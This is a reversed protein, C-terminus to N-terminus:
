LDKRSRTTKKLNYREKKRKLVEEKNKDYYRQQNQLIRKRNKKYYEPDYRHTSAM